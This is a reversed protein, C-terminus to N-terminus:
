PRWSPVEDDSGDGTLKVVSSGDLAMVYIDWEGDRDSYFAMRGGDPSWTPGHDSSFPTKTLNVADGGAAPMVFIDAYGTRTSEFAIRSGDPSWTPNTDDAPDVTLRVLNGGDRDIM